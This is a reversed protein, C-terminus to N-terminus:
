LGIGPVRNRASSRVQLTRRYRLGDIKAGWVEDTRRSGDHVWGDFIPLVQKVIDVETVGAPLSGNLPLDDFSVAVKEAVCLAPVLALLAALMTKLMPIRKRTSLVVSRVRAAVVGAVDHLVLV